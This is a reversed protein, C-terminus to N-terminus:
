INAGLQQSSDVESEAVGFPVGCLAVELLAWDKGRAPFWCYSAGM